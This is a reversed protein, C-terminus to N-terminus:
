TVEEGPAGDAAPPIDRQERDDPAGRPAREGTHRM